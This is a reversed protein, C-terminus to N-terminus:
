SRPKPWFDTVLPYTSSVQDVPVGASRTAGAFSPLWLRFPRYIHRHRYSESARKMIDFSERDARQREIGVVSTEVDQHKLLVQAPEGVKNHHVDLQQQMVGDLSIGGILRARITFDCHEEGFKGFMADFYGITDLVPRTISMMIGTMRPCLKVTYGRKKIDVWKYAPGEFDCFCFMGVGLDDHAQAYFNVFDGLVHLDDNLICLHDADTEEMFWRLARNSNGAVGLNVDGLFSRFKQGDGVWETALLDPRSVAKTRGEKLFAETGDRNSLDDFVAVHYQGCHELVGKLEEKLVNVRNYTIIAIASKM